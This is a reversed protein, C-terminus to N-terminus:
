FQKCQSSKTFSSKVLPGLLIAFTKFIYNKKASIDAVKSQFHKEKEVYDGKLEICKTWCTELLQIEDRFNPQLLDEFYGNVVAIVEKNSEFHKGALM